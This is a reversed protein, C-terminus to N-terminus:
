TEKLFTSLFFPALQLDECDKVHCSLSRTWALFNVSASASVLNSVRSYQARGATPANTSTADRYVRVQESLTEGHAGNGNISVSPGDDGRNPGVGAGPNGSPPYPKAPITYKRRKKGVYKAPHKLSCLPCIRWVNRKYYCRPQSWSRVQSLTTWLPYQLLQVFLKQLFPQLRGSVQRHSARQHDTWSESARLSFWEFWIHSHRASCHYLDDRHVGFGRALIM